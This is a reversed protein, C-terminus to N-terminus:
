ENNQDETYIKKTQKHPCTEQNYLCCAACDTKICHEILCEHCIGKGEDGESSSSLVWGGDPLPNKVSVRQGCIACHLEGDGMLIFGNDGDKIRSTFDANNCSHYCSNGCDPCIVEGNRLDALDYSFHCSCHPCTTKYTKYGHTHIKIM